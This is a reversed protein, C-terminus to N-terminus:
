AFLCLFMRALLCVCWFDFLCAPLCAVLVFLLVCSGVLWVLLFVFVGRSVCGCVRLWAILRVFLCGLSCAFLCVFLCVRLRALLCVFCGDSLSVVLWVFLCM